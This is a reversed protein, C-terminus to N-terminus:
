RAEPLLAAAGGREGREAALLRPGIRSLLWPLVLLSLLLATGVGLALVIGFSALGLAGISAMTTAGTLLISRGTGAVTRALDGHEQRYRHVLHVGYDEATGLVVPLAMVAIPNFSLGLLRMAGLTAPLGLATPLLALTAWGPHRLDAVVLAVLLLAAVTGARILARRSREVMFRGLVPMGTVHPDLAQMRRVFRAQRTPDWVDGEPYAYVAYRGDPSVFAARLDAAERSDSEGLLELDALSRVQGVLPERYLTTALREAGERTDSVFAAFQPSWRSHRVMDRELRVAASDAPQLDLYDSDFHPLGALPLLLACAAVPVALGARGLRTLAAGLRRAPRHRRRTPLLVLLAPLVSATALLCTLVGLGAIWGLEAFGRFGSGLLAFFALSTTLAGTVLGPALAEM